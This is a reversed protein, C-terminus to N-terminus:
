TVNRRCHCCDAPPSPHHTPRFSYILRRTIEAHKPSAQLTSISISNAVQARLSRSILVRFSERFTPSYDTNAWLLKLQDIDIASRPLPLKGVRLTYQWKGVIFELPCHWHLTYIARSLDASSVLSFFKLNLNCWIILRFICYCEMFILINIFILM